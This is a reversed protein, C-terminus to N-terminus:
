RTSIYVKEPYDRVTRFARDLFRPPFWAGHARESLLSRRLLVRCSRQLASGAAAPDAAIGNPQAYSGRVRFLLAASRRQAGHPVIM